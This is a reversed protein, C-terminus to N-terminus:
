RISSSGFKEFITHLCQMISFTLRRSIFEPICSCSCTLNFLFRHVIFFGTGEGGGDGGGGPNRLLVVIVFRKQAVTFVIAGETSHVVQHM